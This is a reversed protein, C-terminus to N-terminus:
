EQQRIPRHNDIRRTQALKLQPVRPFSYRLGERIDIFKCGLAPEAIALVPFFGPARHLFGYRAAIEHLISQLTPALQLPLLLKELSLYIGFNAGCM